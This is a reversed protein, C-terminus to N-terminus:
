DPDRTKQWDGTKLFRVLLWIPIVLMAGLVLYGLLWEIAGFGMDYISRFFNDIVAFFNGPTVGFFSLIVGVLISLIALRILVSVPHGGVFDRFNM